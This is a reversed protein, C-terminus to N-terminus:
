PNGSVEQIVVKTRHSSGAQEVELDKIMWRDNIKKLSKIWLKRVPAGNKDLGEAQLMMCMKRDIWLRVRAYAVGASVPLNAPAPVEMVYCSYGLVEEVGTVEGGTWWLFSLSLDSWSLDGQQLPAFLDPVPAPRLPYGAAYAYSVSDSQVARSIMLQELDGGFGDRLTYTATSPDHGWALQMEFRFQHEVVGRRRRVIIDGEIRLPESPLQSRVAQLLADGDPWDKLAIVEVAPNGNTASSVAPFLQAPAPILMALWLCLCAGIRFIRNLYIV